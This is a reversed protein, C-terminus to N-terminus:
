APAGTELNIEIETVQVVDVQGIVLVDPGDVHSWEAVAAKVEAALRDTIENTTTLLAKGDPRVVLTFRSM